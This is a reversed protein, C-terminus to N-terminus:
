VGSKWVGNIKKWRKGSRWTGSIKKWPTGHKWVGNIRKWESLGTGVPTGTTAFPVQNSASGLGNSSNTHIQAFYNTAPDLGELDKLLQTPPMTHTQVIQTM